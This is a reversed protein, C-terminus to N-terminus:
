LNKKVYWVIVLLGIPILLLFYNFGSVKNDVKKTIEEKKIASSDKKLYTSSDINKYTSKDEKIVKGKEITKEETKYSTKLASDYNFKIITIKLYNSDSILQKSNDVFHYDKNSIISLATSDFKEKQINKSTKCSLLLFTSLLLYKM